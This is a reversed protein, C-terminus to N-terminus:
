KLPRSTKQSRKLNMYTEGWTKVRGPHEASASNAMFDPLPRGGRFDMEVEKTDQGIVAKQTCVWIEVGLMAMSILSTNNKLM